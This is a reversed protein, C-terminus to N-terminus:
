RSVLAGIYTAIVSLIITVIIYSLASILNSNIMM